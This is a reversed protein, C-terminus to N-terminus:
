LYIVNVILNIMRGLELVEDNGMFNGGDLQAYDFETVGDNPWDLVLNTALSCYDGL